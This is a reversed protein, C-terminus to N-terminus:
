KISDFGSNSNSLIFDYPMLNFIAAPVAILYTLFYSSILLFHTYTLSLTHAHTLTHTHTISLSLTHAHPLSSLTHTHSLAHTYKYTNHTLSRIM